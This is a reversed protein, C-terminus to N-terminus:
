SQPQLDNNKIGNSILLNRTDCLPLGLINSYSGNIRKVLVECFSEMRLGGACGFINGYKIVDEIDRESMHKFKVKSEVLKSTILGNKAIFCVGTLVKINRGSYLKFYRHIDEEKGLKQVIMNRAVVITDAALINEHPSDKAVKAAKEKSIRIVYNTPKEKKLPTEDIDAPIIAKPVFRAQELLKLRSESASALIFDSM